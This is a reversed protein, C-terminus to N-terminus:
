FPIAASFGFRELEVTLCIFCTSTNSTEVVALGGSVYISIPYGMFKNLNMTTSKLLVNNIFPMKETLFTLFKIQM